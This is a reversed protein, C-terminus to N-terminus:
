MVKLADHGVPVLITDPLLGTWPYCCPKLHCCLDCIDAHGETTICDMPMFVTVLSTSGCVRVRGETADHVRSM